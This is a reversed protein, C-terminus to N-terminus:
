TAWCFAPRPLCAKTPEIPSSNGGSRLDPEFRVIKSSLWIMASSFPPLSRSTNSPRALFDTRGEFRGPEVDPGGGPWLGDAGGAGGLGDATGGGDKRDAPFVVRSPTCTGANGSGVDVGNGAGALM